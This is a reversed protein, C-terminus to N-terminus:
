ISTLFGWGDSYVSSSSVSFSVIDGDNGRLGLPRSLWHAEGGGGNGVAQVVGVVGPVGEGAVMGVVAVSNDYNISRGDSSDGVSQEGHMILGRQM